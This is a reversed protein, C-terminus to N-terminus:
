SLGAALRELSVNPKPAARVTESVRDMLDPGGAIDVPIPLTNALLGVTRELEPHFRNAVPCGIVLRQTGHSRGLTVALATLLAPYLRPRILDVAERGIQTVVRGGSSAAVGTRRGLDLPGEFGSLVETWYAVDDAMEYAAVDAVQVPGPGLSAAPDAYCRALEDVLVGVSWGDLVLHHATVVLLHDDEARRELGFRVPPGNVLDFPRTIEEQTRGPELIALAVRAPPAAIQRPQGDVTVFRTRLAEHRAVLTSLASELAAVDLPGRMRIAFPMHYTASGPSLQELAWMRRQPGTLPMGQAIRAARPFDQAVPETSENPLAALVLATLKGLTAASLVEDLGLAVGFRARLRSLLQAGLLSHGGVQYFDDDSDAADVGLVESWIRTVEETPNSVPVVNTVAPRQAALQPPDVWHRDPEFPYAPLAVRRGSRGERVTNWDVAVGACWAAAAADLAAARDGTDGMGPQASWGETPLQLRIMGTLTQGPGLEVCWGAPVDRTVTAVSSAFLVPDRLQAAWYGPDTAQTATIWDGTRSSLYPIAPEGLRFQELVTRLATVAPDM